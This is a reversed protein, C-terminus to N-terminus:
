NFPKRIDGGAAFSYTTNNSKEGLFTQISATVSAALLSLPPLSSDTHAYDTIQEETIKSLCFEVAVCLSSPNIHLCPIRINKNTPQCSPSHVGIFFFIM